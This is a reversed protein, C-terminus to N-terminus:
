PHLLTLCQSSLTCLTTPLTTPPLLHYYACSFPTTPSLLCLLPTSATSKTSVSTRLAGGWRKGSIGARMMMMIMVMMMMTMTMIIIKMIMVVRRIMTPVVRVGHTCNVPWCHCIHTPRTLAGQQSQRKINRLKM